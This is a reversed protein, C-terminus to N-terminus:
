WVHLAVVQAKGPTNGTVAVRLLIQLNKQPWDAPAQALAKELDLKSTVFEAAAQTGYQTVGAVMMLPEDTGSDFTRAVIAYDEPTRGNAQLADLFWQRREGVTERIGRRSQEQVFRFPFREQVHLSWANSFAGVLLVPYHKLDFASFENGIRLQTRKTFEALLNGVKMAAAASGAGVYQDPVPLIDQATFELDALPLAYPGLAVPQPSRKAYQEHVRKSFNYVVPQGLCVVAPNASAVMPRWFQEFAPPAPRLVYAILGVVAPLLLLAALWARRPNGLPAAPAAVVPEEAPVWHFEPVYSGPPLEIRWGSVTQAQDYHQYLRKRVESARVRVIADSSPDYEPGRGFLEVGVTREKLKDARGAVTEEVVYRLFEQCRKSSRFAAGTVILELAALIKQQQSDPMPPLAISAVRDPINV